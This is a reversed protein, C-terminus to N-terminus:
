EEGGAATTYCNKGWRLYMIVSTSGGGSIQEAKALPPDMMSGGPMAEALCLLLKWCRRVSAVGTAGGAVLVKGYLGLVIRRFLV